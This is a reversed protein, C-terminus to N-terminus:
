TNLGSFKEILPFWTNAILGCTGLTPEFKAQGEGWMDMLFYGQVNVYKL